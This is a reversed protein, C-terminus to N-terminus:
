ALVEGIRTPLGVLLDALEASPTQVVRQGHVDYVAWDESGLPEARWPPAHLALLQEYREGFADFPRPKPNVPRTKKAVLEVETAKNQWWENDEREAM